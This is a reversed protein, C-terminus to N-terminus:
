EEEYSHTVEGTKLHFEAILEQISKWSGKGVLQPNVVFTSAGHRFLVGAKVLKSIESSFRTLASKEKWGIKKSIDRKLEANLYIKQGEDAYKMYPLLNVLLKTSVNNINKFACWASVYLKVHDPERSVYYEKSKKSSSSEINGSSDTKFKKTEETKIIRKKDQM